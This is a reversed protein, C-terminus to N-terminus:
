PVRLGTALEEEIRLFRNYKSSREGRAPAGLKIYSAGIAVVVDAVSTDECEGSRVSAVVDYGARYATDAAELAETITGVQNIKFLMANAAGAAIGKELRKRNTVFLDDGVVQIGLMEKALRFGEFDDEHLPDEIQRIPFRGILDKYHALLQERSLDGVTLRYKGTDPQYFLGSAVDIALAFEGEYGAAAIAECITTMAGDEDGIPPTYAGGVAPVPGYRQELMAGLKRYIEAIHRTAERFTMPTVPFIAHDEFDLENGSFKAGAMVNAVPVPLRCGRLGGIYRYLPLGVAKAAANATALSVALISNSGLRAKNDTGDLEVMAGDVRRQDTADMGVLRPGIIENVNEVAKLVGRGDFRPGGDRLELAEYSGTSAGSPVSSRGIQGGALWVDAEVTPNGIGNMIERAVVREIDYASM